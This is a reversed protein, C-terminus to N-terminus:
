LLLLEQNYASHGEYIVIALSTPNDYKAFFDGLKRNVARAANESSVAPIIFSETEYHFVDKFINLLEAEIPGLSLDDNWWRLSIVGVRNYKKDSVLANKVAKEIAKVADKFGNEHHLAHSARTSPISSM